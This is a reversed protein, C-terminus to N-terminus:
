VFHCAAQHGAGVTKVPPAQEACIPQAMPCRTRFTCGSPPASPSPIEGKLVQITKSNRKGVEPVASLLARTYPHTPTSFVSERPGTEVIHGLYMVAVRHSIYRVVSLDHSIFVYALGLDRQLDRLLNIVQAQVSVDLASVPEDCIILKPNLALARAVVIRQRQGGSFEHPYRAAADPRLSVRELLEAVRKDIVDRPTGFNRLPEGIIDRVRMRPNMSSFPDQFIFQMHQRMARLENSPLTTLEKGQFRVSGSTPDLLRVLCRGTTSKGCGSEGVLGLTEGPNVHLSVGDVARVVKRPQGFGSSDVAFHKRLDRVELLPPTAITSTM